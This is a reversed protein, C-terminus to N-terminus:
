IITGSTAPDVSAIRSTSRISQTAGYRDPWSVVLDVTKYDPNTFTTVTLTLTYTANVGTVTTTGSVIDQYARFGSTTALVQYDRLLEIKASALLTAEAQQQAISDNYAITNQFRVLALTCVAIIVVAILSEVLGAGKLKHFSNIM